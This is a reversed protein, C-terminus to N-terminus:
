MLNLWLAVGSVGNGEVVTCDNMKPLCGCTAVGNCAPPLDLCEATHNGCDGESYLCYQTLGSCYWPDKYDCLQTETCSQGGCSGTAGGSSTGSGGDVGSGAAGGNASESGDSGCGAALGLLPLLALVHNRFRM